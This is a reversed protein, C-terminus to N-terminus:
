RDARREREAWEWCAKDNAHAMVPAGALYVCHGHWRPWRDRTKPAHRRYHKCTGCRKEAAGM